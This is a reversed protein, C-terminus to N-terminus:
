GHFSNVNKTRIQIISNAVIIDLQRKNLLTLNEVRGM